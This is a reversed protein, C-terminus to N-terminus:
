KGCYWLHISFEKALKRVVQNEAGSVSWLNAVCGVWHGLWVCELSSWCVCVCELSSWCVGLGTGWGCM